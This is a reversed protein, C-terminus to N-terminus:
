LNDDLGDMIKDFDDDFDGDDGDADQGDDSDGNEGLLFMDLDQDTHLLTSAKSLQNADNVEAESTKMLTNEQEAPNLIVDEVKVPEKLTDNKEQKTSKLTVNEVKSPEGQTDYKEKKAKLKVDEQYRKEFPAVHNNVLIFYIRWFKREKMNRPCLEYRLQSIEKVTQLVISAHRAQWESLDQRINTVTHVDYLQTDDELPFDKFTTSTIGQVFERLEETVGFTQLDQELTSASTGVPPETLDQASSPTIVSALQKIDEARKLAESLFQDGRKSAAAAIEKSRKATESVVDYLKSTGITLGQTRQAADKALEQSRKTAEEAFSQAKHWIEM